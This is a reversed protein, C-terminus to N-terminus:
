RIESKTADQLIRHIAEIEASIRPIQWHTTSTALLQQFIRLATNYAGLERLILGQYFKAVRNDPALRRAKEIAGLAEQNKGQHHLAIALTLHASGQSADVQIAERAAQEARMYDGNQTHLSCLQLHPLIWTPDIISAERFARIAGRSDNQKSLLIGLNYLVVASNPDYAAASQQYQAAPQRQGATFYSAALNNLAPANTEDIELAKEFSANARAWDTNQFWLYGEQNYAYDADPDIAEALALFKVPLEYGHTSQNVQASAM